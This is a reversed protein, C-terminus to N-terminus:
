NPSSCLSQVEMARDGQVRSQGKRRQKLSFTVVRGKGQAKKEMAWVGFHEHWKKASISLCMLPGCAGDEHQGVVAECGLAWVM